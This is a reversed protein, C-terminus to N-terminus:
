SVPQLECLEQITIQLVWGWSSQDHICCLTTHAEMLFGKQGESTSSVLMTQSLACPRVEKGGEEPAGEGRM